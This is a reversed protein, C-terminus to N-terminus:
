SSSWSRATARRGPCSSRLAPRGQRRMAEGGVLRRLTSESVKRRAPSSRDGERGPQEDTDALRAVLGGPSGRPSRALRVRSNPWTWSTMTWFKRGLGRVAIALSGAALSSSNWQVIAAARSSKGLRREGALAASGSHRDSAPQEVEADVVETADRRDGGVVDVGLSGPRRDAHEASRTRRLAAEVERRPERHVGLVDAHVGSSGRRCPEARRTPGRRSASEERTVVDPVGAGVM